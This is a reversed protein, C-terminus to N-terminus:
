KNKRRRFSAGGMAALGLAMLSMTMPEPTPTEELTGQTIDLEVYFDNFDSDSNPNGGANFLDCDHLQSDLFARNPSNPGGQINPGDATLRSREITQVNNLDDACGTNLDEWALVYQGAQQVGGVTVALLVEQFGMPAPTGNRSQAGTYDWYGPTTTGAGNGNPDPVQLGFVLENGSLVNNFSSSAAGATGACFYFGGAGNSGCDSMFMFTGPNVPSNLFPGSTTGAFGGPFYYMGSNLLADEGIKTATGALCGNLFGGLGLHQQFVCPGGVVIGGAHAKTPTISLGALAIAGLVLSRIRM